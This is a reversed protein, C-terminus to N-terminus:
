QLHDAWPSAQNSLRAALTVPIAVGAQAGAAVAELNNATGNALRDVFNGNAEVDATRKQKVEDLEGSSLIKDDLSQTFDKTAWDDPTAANIGAAVANLGDNVWDASAAYQLASGVQTILGTERQQPQATQAAEKTKSPNSASAAAKQQAARQSQAAKRQAEAYAKREQEEQLQQQRLEEPTFAM